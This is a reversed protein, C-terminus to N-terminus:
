FRSQIENESKGNKRLEINDIIFSREYATLSEWDVMEKMTMWCTICYGTKSSVGGCPCNPSSCPNVPEIIEEDWVSM